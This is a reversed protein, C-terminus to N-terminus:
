GQTVRVTSIRAASKGMNIHLKVLGDPQRAFEGSLQGEFDWVGQPSKDSKLAGRVPVWRGTKPHLAAVEVKEQGTSKVMPDNPSNMYGRFTGLGRGHIDLKWNKGAPLTVDYYANGGGNGAYYYNSRPNSPEYSALNVMGERAAIRNKATPPIRFVYLTVDRGGPHNEFTLQAAPKDSWAVIIAQGNLKGMNSGLAAALTNAPINNTRTVKDFVNELRSATGIRGIIDPSTGAMGDGAGASATAGPKVDGFPRIAGDEVLVAGKLEVPTGNQLRPTPGPIYHIGKDLDVVAQGAFPRDAWMLVLSREAVFSTDKPQAVTISSPDRGSALYDAVAGNKAQSMVDYTTKRPSFLWLLSDVRAEDSGVASQVIDVQRTLIARGRLSLATQYALFSFAVVIAPITIWALERRDFFRLVAYNVPVLFFVYLALFWAIQSVPPMRLQPAKQLSQFLNGTATTQGDPNGPNYYGGGGFGNNANALSFAADPDITDLRRVKVSNAFVDKWMSPLGRWGIFPPQTPDYSLFMCRGAGTEAVAFLPNAVTGEKLVAGEKLGGRSLLVPAGGLRDSGDRPNPYYRGVLDAVENSNASASSELKVPWLDELPSASLRQARAGGTVLLNGGGNAFNRISALQEPLLETHAFDGLMLLDVADFGIWRDPVNAKSTTVPRVPAQGSNQNIGDQGEYNALGHGRMGALYSIREDGDTISVVLRQAPDLAELRAQDRLASFGRGSFTVEISSAEQRELRGYLWVVKNSTPPLDVQTTYENPTNEFGTETALRLRLEGQVPDGTNKLKVAVPFWRGFRACISLPKETFALPSALEMQIPGSPTATPTPTPNQARAPVLCCLLFLLAALFRQPM